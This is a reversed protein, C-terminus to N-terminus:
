GIINCGRKSVALSLCANSWRFFLCLNRSCGDLSFMVGRLFQLLPIFAVGLLFFRTGLYICQVFLAGFNGPLPPHDPYRRFLRFIICIFSGVRSWMGSAEVEWSVVESVVSWTDLGIWVSSHLLGFGRCNDMSGHRDAWIWLFGSQYLWCSSVLFFFCFSARLSSYIYDTQTTNIMIHKRWLPSSAVTNIYKYWKM